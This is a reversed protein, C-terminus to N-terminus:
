PIPSRLRPSRRHWHRPSGLRRRPFRRHRSPRRPFQPAPVPPAPVPPAPVPPASVPAASGTPAPVPLAPVPPAPIPPAPRSTLFKGHEAAQDPLLTDGESVRPRLEFVRAEPAQEGSGFSALDAHRLEEIEVPDPTEEDGAAIALSYDHPERRTRTLRM